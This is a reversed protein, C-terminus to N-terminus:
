KGLCEQARLIDMPGPTAGDILEQVRAEGLKSTACDQMAPTIETPLKSADVGFNALTEEQTESLLPHNTPTANVGKELPEYNELTSQLYTNIARGIIKTRLNLPNFTFIIILGVIFLLILILLTQITKKM